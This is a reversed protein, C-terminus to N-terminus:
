YVSVLLKVYRHDCRKTQENGDLLLLLLGMPGAVCYNGNSVNVYESVFVIM